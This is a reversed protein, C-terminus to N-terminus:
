HKYVKSVNEFTISLKLQLITCGVNYPFLKFVLVKKNKTLTNKTASKLVTGKIGHIIVLIKNKMIFNDNIFDNILVIATAEEFGHLDLTPLNDIFLVENLNM